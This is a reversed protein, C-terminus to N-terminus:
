NVVNHCADLEFFVLEIFAGDEGYQQHHMRVPGLNANHHGTVVLAVVSSSTFHPCM